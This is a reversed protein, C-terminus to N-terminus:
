KHYDNTRIATRMVKATFEPSDILTHPHTFIDIGKAHRGPVMHRQWLRTESRDPPYLYSLQFLILTIKQWILLHYNGPSQGPQNAPSQGPQNTGSPQPPPPASPGEEPIPSLARNQQNQQGQERARRRRFMVRDAREREKDYDM